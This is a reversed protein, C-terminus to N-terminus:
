AALREDSSTARAELAFRISAPLQRASKVRPSDMETTAGEGALDAREPFNDLRMDSVTELFSEAPTNEAILLDHSDVEVHFYTFLMPMREERVISSGNVLAGAHVLLGEVMIAHGASVLLDRSPVLDALAGAKIRVPMMRLKDAFKTAVVTQGIWRIPKAVGSATIVMDGAHLTEIAQEGSPTSLMTGSVFCYPTEARIVWQTSPTKVAEATLTLPQTGSGIPSGTPAFLFYNGTDLDEGVAAHYTVSEITATVYGRYVLDALGGADTLVDSNGDQTDDSNYGVVSFSDYPTDGLIQTSSGTSNNLDKVSTHDSLAASGDTSYTLQGHSGSVNLAYVNYSDVSAM